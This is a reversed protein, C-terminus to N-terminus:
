LDKIEKTLNVELNKTLQPNHQKTKLIKNKYHHKSACNSKTHKEHRWIGQVTNIIISTMQINKQTKLAYQRHITFTKMKEKSIKLGKIDKKSQQM